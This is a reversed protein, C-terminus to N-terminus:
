DSSARRGSSGAAVAEPPLKGQRELNTFIGVLMLYIVLFLFQARPTPAVLLFTFAAAMMASFVNLKPAVLISLSLVVVATVSYFEGHGIWTFLGSLVNPFFTTFVARDKLVLNFLITNELVAKVGYPAMILVATALAIGVDLAIELLSRLRKVDFRHWYYAAMLPIVLFKTMLGIGFLVAIVYRHAPRPKELNITIALLILATMLLAMAPSQRIEGFVFLPLFPLLYSRKIRPFTWLFVLGALAQIAAKYITLSTMTVKGVVLYLLYYPYIEMPPYNFNGFVTKTGDAIHLITGCAYPNQGNELAQFVGAYHRVIEARESLDVFQGIGLVLGVIVAAIRMGRTFVWGPRVRYVYWIGTLIVSLKVSMFDDFANPIPKLAFVLLSFLICVALAAAVVRDNWSTELTDIM